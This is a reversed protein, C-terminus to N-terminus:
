KSHPMALEVGVKFHLNNHSDKTIEDLTSKFNGLHMFYAGAFISMDLSKIQKIKYGGLIGSMWGTATRKRRYELQQTVPNFIYGAMGVDPNDTIDKIYAWDKVYSAEAGLWFSDNGFTRRGQLGFKILDDNGVFYYYRNYGLVGLVETKEGLKPGILIEVGGGIQTNGHDKAEGPQGGTDNDNDSKILTGKTAFYTEDRLVVCGSFFTLIFMILVSLKLIKNFKVTRSLELKQSKM